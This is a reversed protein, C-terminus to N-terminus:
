KDLMKRFDDNSMGKREVREGEGGQDMESEDQIKVARPLMLQTKRDHPGRRRLKDEEPPNPVKPKPAGEKGKSGGERRSLWDERKKSTPPNSISVSIKSEGIQLEDLGLLAKTASSEEDFEVYAWGRPKGTLSNFCNISIGMYPFRYPDDIGM